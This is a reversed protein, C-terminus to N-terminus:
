PPTATGSVFKRYTEQEEGGAEPGTNRLRNSQIYMISQPEPFICDAEVGAGSLITPLSGNM